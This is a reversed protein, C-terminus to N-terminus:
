CRKPIASAKTITPDPRPAIIRGTTARKPQRCRHRDHRRGPAARVGAHQDLVRLGQLAEGVTSVSITSLVPVSVSPLGLSVSTSQRVRAEVLRVQEREGGAEFFAGLMREGLRDHRRCLLAIALIASASPNSATVPLPTVPVIAPRETASPLWASIASKPTSM